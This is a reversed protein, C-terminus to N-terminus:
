SQQKKHKNIQRTIAAKVQILETIEKPYRHLTNRKMLEVDSICELNNPELNQSNGDKFVINFGPQLTTKNETEWLHIHKYVLKKNGPLKILTYPRSGNSKDSRIVEEFDQLANHPEHGKQFRTAKTREIPELSMYETQKKGKNAPTQGKRYMGIAKRQAALDEPVELGLQRMRCRIGCDSKKLIAGIRKLPLTLYNEKIFETQEDTFSTRGTMADVRFQKITELPVVINHQKFVGHCVSPSVGFKKCM